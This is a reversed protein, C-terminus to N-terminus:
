LFHKMFDIYSRVDGDEGLDKSTYLGAKGDYVVQGPQFFQPRDQVYLKKM